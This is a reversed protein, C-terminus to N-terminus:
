EADMYVKVLTTFEEDSHCLQKDGTPSIVECTVPPVEWYKKEGVTHWAYAGYAKGEFADYVNRYTWTTTSTAATNQVHVFCKNLKASYHNEFIAGDTPKFGSEAFAKRAQEACKAQLELSASKARVDAASARSALVALQGQQAAIIDNQRYALLGLAAVAALLLLFVVKM